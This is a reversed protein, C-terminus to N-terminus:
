REEDHGLPAIGQQLATRSCNNTRTDAVWVRSPACPSIVRTGACEGLNHSRHRCDSRVEYRKGAARSRARSRAPGADVARMEREPVPRVPGATPTIDISRSSGM